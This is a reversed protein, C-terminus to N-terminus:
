EIICQTTSDVERFIGERQTKKKLARLASPQHQQRLCFSAFAEVGKRADELRM